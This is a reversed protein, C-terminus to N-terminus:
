VPGEKDNADGDEEQDDDNDEDDIGEPVHTLFSM